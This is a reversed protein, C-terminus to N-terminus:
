YMNFHSESKRKREIYVTNRKQVVTTNEPISNCVLTGAGIVANDGITIGKLIICGAGIWVGNGISIKNTIYGGKGDHDHDYIYVGPGITVNNGIKIMEHSSIISNRNIFCKEGIIIKGGRATIESNSSITSKYGIQIQGNNFTRIVSHLSILSIVSKVKLKVGCIKCLVIKLNSKLVLVASTFLSIKFM